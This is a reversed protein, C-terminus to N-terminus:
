NSFKLNRILSQNMEWETGHQIPIWFILLYRRELAYIGTDLKKIRLIM